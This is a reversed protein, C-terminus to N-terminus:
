ESTTVSGQVEISRNIEFTVHDLREVGFPTVCILEMTWQGDQDIRIDWNGPTCVMDKPTAAYYNPDGSGVILIGDKIPSGAQTPPGPYIQAYTNSSPYIDQYTLTIQPTAFRISDGESIGSISGTTQPWVQVFISALQSSPAQYDEITYVSFIEEGRSKLYNGDIIPIQSMGFTYHHIQNDVLYVEQLLTSQGTVPDRNINEGTGDMGYSLVHRRLRVSKSAIRADPLDSLGATKVFVDFTRGVQTRPIMQYSDGTVIAIEAWPTYSSVYKSDLLYETLPNNRITWLEFRAGGPNIQLPSLQQGQDSVYVYHPPAPEGDEPLEIQVFYNTFEDASQAFAASIGLLVGFLKSPLSKM